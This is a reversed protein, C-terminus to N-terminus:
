DNLYIKRYGVESEQLTRTRRILNQDNQRQKRTTHINVLSDNTLYPHLKYEPCFETDISYNLLKLFRLYKKFESLVQKQKLANEIPLLIKLIRKLSCFSFFVNQHLTLSEYSYTIKFKFLLLISNNLFIKIKNCIVSYIICCFNCNYIYM